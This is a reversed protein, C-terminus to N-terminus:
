NSPSVLEDIYGSIKQILGVEAVLNLNVSGSIWVHHYQEETGKMYITGKLKENRYSIQMEKIDFFDAEVFVANYGSQKWKLPPYDAFRPMTFGLSIRRGEDKIEVYEISIQSLEPVEEYLTTLFESHKLEKHWM